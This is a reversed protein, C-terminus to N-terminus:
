FKSVWSLAESVKKQSSLYEILWNCLLIVDARNPRDM